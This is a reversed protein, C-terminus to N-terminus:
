QVMRLITKAHFKKIKKKVRLDLPQYLHTVNPLVRVLFINSETLMNTMQVRVVDMMFLHMKKLTHFSLKKPLKLFETTSCYHKLNASLSLVESFYFKPLSQVTKEDYMCEMPLFTLNLTIIFTVTM